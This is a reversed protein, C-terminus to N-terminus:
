AGVQLQLLSKFWFATDRAHFVKPEAPRGRAAHGGRLEEYGRIRGESPHQLVYSYM